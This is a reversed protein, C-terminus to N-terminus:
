AAALNMTLQMYLKGNLLLVVVWVLRSSCVLLCAHLHSKGRIRHQLLKQARRQQSKHSLAARVDHDDAVEQQNTAAAASAASGIGAHVYSFRQIWWWCYTYM